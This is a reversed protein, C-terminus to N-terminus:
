NANGGENDSKCPTQM